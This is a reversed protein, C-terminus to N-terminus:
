DPLHLTGEALHGALEVELQAALLVPRDRYHGRVFRIV